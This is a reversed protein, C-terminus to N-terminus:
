VAMRLRICLQLRSLCHRRCCSCPTRLAAPQQERRQLRCILIPCAFLPQLSEYPRAQGSPQPVSPVPQRAFHQRPALTAALTPYDHPNLHRDRAQLAPATPYPGEPPPFQLGPAKGPAAWNSGATLASARSEPPPQQQEEPQKWSGRAGASASPVLQTNPDNGSNEQM